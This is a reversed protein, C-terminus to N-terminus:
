ATATTTSRWAGCRRAVSSPTTSTRGRRVRRPPRRHRRRPPHPPQRRDAAAPQQSTSTPAPTPPGTSDGPNAIAMGAAAGVVVPAAVFVALLMAVLPAAALQPVRLGPLRISRGSIQAVLEVVLSIAFVLWALWGVWSIIRILLQGDDPTFLAGARLADVSITSPLPNGGLAWLAAPIGVLAVAVGVLGAVTRLLRSIM